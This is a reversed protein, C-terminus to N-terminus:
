ESSILFHHLLRRDRDKSKIIELGIQYKDSKEKPMRRMKKIWAVRGELGLTKGSKPLAMTIGVRSDTELLKKSILCIGGESINVTQVQEAKNKPLQLNINIGYSVRKFRRKELGIMIKKVYVKAPLHEVMCIEDEQPFSFIGLTVFVDKIRNEAFYGKIEDKFLSALRNARDETAGPFVISCKGDRTDVIVINAKHRKEGEKKIIGNIIYELDKFFRRSGVKIDKKAEKYNVIKLNVVCLPVKKKLLHNIRRIIKNDLVDPIYYRPLTFYFKSGIGPKSEVWIEGGHSEIWEKTLSLGLGIGRKEGGSIESAQGFRKFLLPLHSKSIGIGTDIVGIRVKTELVKLEAKIEGGQETFKIANDILNSVAQNIKDADVFLNVPQKPLAYNISIGKKLAAKKFYDQGHAVLDNLDILSYQLKFRGSEIRSIDLLEDIIKGLREINDQTKEIIARQRKNIPGGVEDSLQAVLQKIIALPTRIEHSVTSVFDSKMRNLGELMELRKETRAHKEKLHELQMRRTVDRTIGILGEVKGDEDFKPIKTTSVYNDAGDPRTAREIKDIIPKGSRLVYMDDRAMKEAKIRPFLDFDTKGKVDGPRLGFGKAHARNVLVLRGEKDKFYIVDPINDMLYLLLNYKDLLENYDKAESKKRNVTKRM